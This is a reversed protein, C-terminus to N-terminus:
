YVSRQGYRLSSKLVDTLGRSPTSRPSGCLPYYYNLCKRPFHPVEVFFLFDSAGKGFGRKGAPTHIGEGFRHWLRSPGANIYLATQRPLIMKASRRFPDSKDM